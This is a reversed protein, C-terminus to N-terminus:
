TRFLILQFSVESAMVSNGLAAANSSLDKAATSDTNTSSSSPSVSSQYTSSGLTTGGSGSSGSAGNLGTSSSGSFGDKTADALSHGTTPATVSGQTSQLFPNNSQPAPLGSSGTQYSTSTSDMAILDSLHIPRSISSSIEAIFHKLSSHLHHLSNISLILPHTFSPPPPLSLLHLTAHLCSVSLLFLNAQRARSTVYAPLCLPFMEDKGGKKREKGQKM